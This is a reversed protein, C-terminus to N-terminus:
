CDLDDHYCVISYSDGRRAKAIKRAVVVFCFVSAVSSVGFLAGFWFQATVQGNDWTLRTLMPM